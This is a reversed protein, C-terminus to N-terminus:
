NQEHSAVVCLKMGQIFRGYPHQCRLRGRTQTNILCFMQCSCSCLTFDIRCSLFTFKIVEHWSSSCDSLTGIGSLASVFVFYLCNLCMFSVCWESYRPKERMQFLLTCTSHFKTEYILLMLLLLSLFIFLQIFFLFTSKEVHVLSKLLVASFCSFQLISCHIILGSTSGRETNCIEYDAYKQQHLMSM